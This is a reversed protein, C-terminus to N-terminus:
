LHPLGSHLTDMPSSDEAVCGGHPHGRRLPCDLFVLTWGKGDLSHTWAAMWDKGM